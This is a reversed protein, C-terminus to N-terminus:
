KDRDLMVPRQQGLSLLVSFAQFLGFDIFNDVLSVNKILKGTPVLSRIFKHSMLDITNLIQRVKLHVVLNLEDRLLTVLLDLAVQM